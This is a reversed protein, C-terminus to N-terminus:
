GNHKTVLGNFIKSKIAGLKVAKNTLISTYEENEINLILFNNNKKETIVM